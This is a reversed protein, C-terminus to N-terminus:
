RDYRVTQMAADVLRDNEEGANLPRTYTIVLKWDGPGYFYLVQRIERNNQTNAIEWRYYAHGDDTILFDERIPEIEPLAAVLQDQVAAAYSEVPFAAEEQVFLLNAASSGLQPGVLAPYQM